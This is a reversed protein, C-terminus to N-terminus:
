PQERGLLEVRVTLTDGARGFAAAFGDGGTALVFGGHNKSSEGCSGMM